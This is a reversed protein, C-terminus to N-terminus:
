WPGLARLPPGRNVPIFPSRTPPYHMRPPHLHVTCEQSAGAGALAAGDSSEEGARWGRRCGCECGEVM